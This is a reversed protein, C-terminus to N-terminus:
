LKGVTYDINYTAILHIITIILVLFFFEIKSERSTLRTNILPFKKKRERRVITTALLITQMVKAADM